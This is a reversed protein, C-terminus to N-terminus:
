RVPERPGPGFARLIAAAIKEGVAKPEDTGLAQVEDGYVDRCLALCHRVAVRAPTPRITQGDANSTRKRDVGTLRGNKSV